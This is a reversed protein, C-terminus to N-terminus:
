YKRSSRSSSTRATSNRSSRSPAKSISRSSSTSRSSVNSRSRSPAKSVSRSASSRKAISSRNRSPAKGVSRRSSTSKSSIMSKSRSPAKSARRSVSSRETARNRSRIPAKSLSKVTSSRKAVSSRGSSPAKIAKRSSSSRTSVGSRNRSTAQPASRDVTARQTRNYSQNSRGRDTRIADNRKAISRNSGAGRASSNQKAVSRNSRVANDRVAVRRDNRYIRSRESRVKSYRHPRGIKAYARRTNYHYPSYYTYRVPSYYRRYPRNYVLCLEVAPRAFFAHFPRYLYHRNFVNIYGTHYDYFGRRNYYVHMGGVRRVRNRRYDIDVDGIQVVRGYHDYFVPVNEVQIVAGYDDYQVYPNYNYGSNFTIGHRRGSVQNEIYFDFEGDPYVSFTIGDEVFIFSDDYRYARSELNEPTDLAKAFAGSTGVFLVSLFLILNKM